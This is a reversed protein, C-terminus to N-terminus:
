IVSVGIDRYNGRTGWVLSHNLLHHPVGPDEGLLPDTKSAANRPIHPGAPPVQPEPSILLELTCLLETQPTGFYLLTPLVTALPHPICEYSGYMGSLAQGYLYIHITLDPRVM